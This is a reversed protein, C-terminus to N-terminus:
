QVGLQGGAVTTDSGFATFLQGIADSRQQLVGAYWVAHGVPPNQILLGLIIGTVGGATVEM